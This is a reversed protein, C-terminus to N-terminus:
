PLHDITNLGTAQFQTNSFDTLPYGDARAPVIIEQSQNKLNAFASEDFSELLGHNPNSM